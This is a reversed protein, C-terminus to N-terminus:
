KEIRNEICGLLFTVLRGVGGNEECFTVMHYGIMNTRILPIRQHKQPIQKHSRTLYCPSMPVRNTEGCKTSLKTINQESFGRPDECELGMFCRVNWGWTLRKIICIYIYPENMTKHNM